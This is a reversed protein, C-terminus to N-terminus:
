RRRRAVASTAASAFRANARLASTYASPRPDDRKAAAAPPARTIHPYALSRTHPALSCLSRKPLSTALLSGFVPSNAFPSRAQCVLRVLRLTRVDNM